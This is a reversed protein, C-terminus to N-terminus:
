HCFIARQILLLKLENWTPYTFYRNLYIIAAYKGIFVTIQTFTHSFAKTANILIMM